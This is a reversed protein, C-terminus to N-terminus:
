HEISFCEDLTFQRPADLADPLNMFTKVAFDYDIGM